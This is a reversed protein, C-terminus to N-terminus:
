VAPRLQPQTNIFQLSRPQQPVIQGVVQTVQQQYLQQNKPNIDDEIKLIDKLRNIGPHLMAVLDYLWRIVTNNFDQQWEPKVKGGADLMDAIKVATQNNHFKGTPPYMKNTQPSPKNAEWTWGRIKGVLEQAAQAMNENITSYAELILHSDRNM